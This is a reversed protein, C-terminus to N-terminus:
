YNKQQYSANILKKAKEFDEGKKIRIAKIGAKRAAKVESERDSLFLVNKPNLRMKKLLIKFFNPSDKSTKFKSPIITKVNSIEKLSRVKERGRLSETVIFFKVKRKKLFDVFEKAKPSYEYKQIKREVKNWEKEFDEPKIPLNLLRVILLNELYEIVERPLFPFKKKIRQIDEKLLRIIKESVKNHTLIRFIDEKSHKPRILTYDLDILVLRINEKSM